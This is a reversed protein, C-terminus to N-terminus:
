LFLPVLLLMPCDINCFSRLPPTMWGGSGREGALWQQVPGALQREHAPWIGQCWPCTTTDAAGGGASAEPMPPRCHRFCSSEGEPKGPRWVGLSVRAAREHGRDQWNNDLYGADHDIVDNQPLQSARARHRARWRGEPNKSQQSWFPAAGSPANLRLGRSAIIRGPEALEHLGNIADESHIAELDPKLDKWSPVHAVGQHLNLHIACLQHLRILRAHLM